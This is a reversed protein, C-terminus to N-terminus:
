EFQGGWWPTQSLNFKSTINYGELPGHLREDAWLQCLWKETKIFTGHPRGHQAILRKLCTIFHTTELTCMLELHMARSLSCAFIALHAKGGWKKYHKYEIPRAFDAGTVEFAKGCNTHDTPLPAPSPTSLALAKFWKCGWCTSQVSKVQKRLTPIWHQERVAVMTLTVGRDLTEVHIRQMNEQLCPTLQGCKPIMCGYHATGGSNQTPLTGEAALYTQQTILPPFMDGSSGHVKEYRRCTALSLNGTSVM